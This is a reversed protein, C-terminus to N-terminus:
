FKKILIKNGKNEFLMMDGSKLKLRGIIEPLIYVTTQISTSTEFQNVSVKNDKYTSSVREMEIHRGIIKQSFIEQGKIKLEKVIDRPITVKAGEGSNTKFFILKADGKAM